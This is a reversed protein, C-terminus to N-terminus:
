QRCNSILHHVQPESCGHSREWTGTDVSHAAQFSWKGDDREGHLFLLFVFNFKCLGQTGMNAKSSASLAVSRNVEPRWPGHQERWGGYRRM